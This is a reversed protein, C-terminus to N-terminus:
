RELGVIRTLTWTMGEATLGRWGDGVLTVSWGVWLRLREGLAFVGRPNTQPTGWADCDRRPRERLRTAKAV